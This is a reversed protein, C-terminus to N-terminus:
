PSIRCSRTRFKRGAHKELAAVVEHLSGKPQEPVAGTTLAQITAVVADQNWEAVEGGCAGGDAPDAATLANLDDTPLLTLAAAPM